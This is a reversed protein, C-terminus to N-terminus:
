YAAVVDLVIVFTIGAVAADPFAAIARGHQVLFFVQEGAATMDLQIRYVGSQYLV